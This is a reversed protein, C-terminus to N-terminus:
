AVEEARRFRYTTGDHTVVYERQDGQTHRLIIGGDTMAVRALDGITSVWVVPTTAPVSLEGVDVLSAGLRQAEREDPRGDRGGRARLGLWSGVIAAIVAVTVTAVRMPEVPFHAGLVALRTDSTEVVTRTEHTSVVLDDSAQLRTNEAVIRFTPASDFDVPAGTTTRGRFRPTVRIEYQAARYDTEQAIADIDDLMTALDVTVAFKSSAGAFARDHVLQKTTTWGGVAAVTVDVDYSGSAEVGKALRWDVGVEVDHVLSRFVIPGTGGAPGLRQDSPEDTAAPAVDRAEV